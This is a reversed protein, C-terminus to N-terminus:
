DVGQEPTSGLFSSIDAAVSCSSTLHECASTKTLTSTM